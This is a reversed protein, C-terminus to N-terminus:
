WMSQHTRHHHICRHRFIYIYIYTDMCVCASLVSAFANTWMVGFVNCTMLLSSCLSSSWRQTSFITTACDALQVRASCGVFRHLRWGKQNWERKRQHVPHYWVFMETPSESPWRQVDCTKSVPIPTVSFTDIGIGVEQYSTTCKQGSSIAALRWTRGYPAGILNHSYVKLLSRVSSHNLQLLETCCSRLQLCASTAGSPEWEEHKKTQMPCDDRQWQPFLITQLTGRKGPSEHPLWCLTM